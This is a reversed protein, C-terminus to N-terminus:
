DDEIDEALTMGYGSTQKKPMTRDPSSSQANARLGVFPQPKTFVVKTTDRPFVGESVDIQSGPVAIMSVSEPESSSWDDHSSPKLNTADDGQQPNHWLGHNRVPATYRPQSQIESDISNHVITSITPSPKKRRNEHVVPSRSATMDSYVGRSPKCRNSVPRTRTSTTRNLLVEEEEDGSDKDFIFKMWLKNQDTGKELAKAPCNDRGDLRHSSKSPMVEDYQLLIKEPEANQRATTTSRQLYSINSPSRDTTKRQCPEIISPTSNQPPDWAISSSTRQSSQAYQPEISVHDEDMYQDSSIVGAGGVPECCDSSLSQDYFDSSHSIDNHSIRNANEPHSIDKNYRITSEKQILSSEWGEWSEAHQYQGGSDENDFRSASFLDEHSTPIASIGPSISVMRDESNGERQFDYTYYETGQTSPAMWTKWLEDEMVRAESIDGEVEGVQALMSSNCKPSSIHLVLHKTPRTPMPQKMSTDCSSRIATRPFPSDKGGLEDQIVSSLNSMASDRHGGSGYTKTEFASLNRDSNLDKRDEIIYDDDLLMDDSSSIQHRMRSTFQRNVKNPQSSSSIGPPVVRDGISIRVDNKSMGERTHGEEEQRIRIKRAAFPSSIRTQLKSYRARHGDTIKRRKGIDPDNKPGNVKLQPPRRLSLGVWDKQSLLKRVKEEISKESPEQLEYNQPIDRAASSAIHERKIRLPPPTANYLDDDPKSSRQIIEVSSSRANARIDQPERQLLHSTSYENYEKRDDWRGPRIESREMEQRPTHEHNRMSNAHDKSSQGQSQGVPIRDFILWQKPPNRQGGSRLNARVKAFHEKQRNTLAGAGRSSKGSHRQLRGGTWNM